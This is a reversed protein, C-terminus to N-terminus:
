VPCNAYFRNFRMGAEMLRDINPTQLDAAGYCSLDGYGLDDLLIFVINPKVSRRPVLSAPHTLVASSMVGSVANVLFQRRTAM